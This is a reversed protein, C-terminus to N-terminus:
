GLTEYKANSLKAKKRTPKWFASIPCKEDSRKEREIKGYKTIKLVL